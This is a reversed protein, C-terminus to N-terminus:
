ARSCIVRLNMIRHFNYPFSFKVGSRSGPILSQSASLPNIQFNSRKQSRAVRRTVRYPNTSCKGLLFPRLHGFILMVFTLVFVVFQFPVEQMAIAFTLQFNIFNIKITVRHSRIKGETSIKSFPQILQVFTLNNKLCLEESAQSCTAGILPTSFISQILEKASLNAGLNTINIM